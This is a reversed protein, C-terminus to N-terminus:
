APLLHAVRPRTRRPTQGLAASEADGSLSLIESSIRELGQVVFHRAIWGVSRRALGVKRLDVMRNLGNEPLEVLYTETAAYVASSYQRLAAVDGPGALNGWLTAFLPTGERLVSQITVDEICLAHLYLRVPPSWPPWCAPTDLYAAVDADLSAHCRRIHRRLLTVGARSPLTQSPPAELM